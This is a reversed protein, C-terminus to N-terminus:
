PQGERMDSIIERLNTVYRNTFNNLHAVSLHCRFCLTMLNWWTAALDPRVHVPLVHHVALRRVRGCYECAPYQNRYAKMTARVRPSQRVRTWWASLRQIPEPTEIM